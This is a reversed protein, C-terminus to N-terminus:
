ALAHGACASFVATYGAQECAVGVFKLPDRIQIVAPVAFALLFGAFRVSRMYAPSICLREACSPCQFYPKSRLVAPSLWLECKPCFFRNMNM